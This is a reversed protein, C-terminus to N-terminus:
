HYPRCDCSDASRKRLDHMDSGSKFSLSMPVGSATDSALQFRLVGQAQQFGQFWPLRSSRSCMQACVVSLSKFSKCECLKTSTGSSLARWARLSAKFATLKCTHSTSTKHKCTNTPTQSSLARTPTQSDLLRLLQTTKQDLPPKPPFSIPTLGRFTCNFGNEESKVEM